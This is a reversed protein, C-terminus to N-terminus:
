FKVAFFPLIKSSYYKFVWFFAKKRCLIYIYKGTFFDPNNNGCNKCFNPQSKKTNSSLQLSGAFSRFIENPYYRLVVFFVNKQKFIKPLFCTKKKIFLNHKSKSYKKRWLLLQYTFSLEIPAM